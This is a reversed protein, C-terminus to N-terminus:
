YFFGEIVNGRYVVKVQIRPYVVDSGFFANKKYNHYVSDNDARVAFINSIDKEEMSKILFQNSDIKQIVQNKILYKM